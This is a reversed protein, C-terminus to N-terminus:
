AARSQAADAQAVGDTFTVGEILRPLQNTGNLRRWKKSAARILTFVM